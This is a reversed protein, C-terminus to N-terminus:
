RAQFPLDARAAAGCDTVCLETQAVGSQAGKTKICLEYMENENVCWWPTSVKLGAMVDPKSELNLQM